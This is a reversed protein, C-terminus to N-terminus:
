LVKLSTDQYSKNCGNTLLTFPLHGDKVGEDLVQSCPGSVIRIGCNQNCWSNDQTYEILYM